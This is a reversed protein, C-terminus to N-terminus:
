VFRTVAANLCVIDEPWLDEAAYKEKVLAQAKEFLGAVKDAEFVLRKEPIPQTAWAMLAAEGADEEVSGDWKVFIPLLNFSIEETGDESSTRKVLFNFHVGELGSFRHDRIQRTTAFGGMEARGCWRIAADTLPHGLAMFELGLSRIAEERNFTVMTYKKRVQEASNLVSPLLFTCYDGQMSVKRGHRKVFETVFEEVHKLDLPSQIQKKFRDPNFQSVAKSLLKYGAEYAQQAKAIGEDILAQSPKIDGKILGERYIREYDLFEEFTGLVSQEIDSVNEGTIKSLTEAATKAKSELYARVKSEITDKYSFNFVQVVQKQGFRYLRGYRQVLRFPNWPMDYNIMIHCFQLNIGEGGAETSIMFRVSERERFKEMNRLKEGLRMGGRIITMCGSGYRNALQEIIYDQTARYETFILVKKRPDDNSVADIATCLESVKGDEPVELGLLDQLMKIERDSFAEASELAIEVESEGAFREDELISEIRKAAKTKGGIRKLRRGLANKIAATSSAALKQFVTMVLGIAQHKKDGPKQGAFGYGEILYEELAAHFDKEGNDLLEVEVPTITIDKFIPNGDADTVQSKKSKLILDTFPVDDPKKPGGHFVVKKDLLSMLHRFASEDGRHPTGTLLILTDCQEQLEEALKFSLTKDVRKKRGDKASLRHAEDFVIVDWKKAGLLVTKHGPLRGDKRPNDLRLTELSAILRDNATFARRGQVEDGYIPFDADFRLDMEEQWQVTLGAPSIILVRDALGRQKFRM